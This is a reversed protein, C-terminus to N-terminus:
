GTETAPRPLHNTSALTGSRTRAAATDIPSSSWRAPFRIVVHIVHDLLQGDQDHIWVVAAVASTDHALDPLPIRGLFDGPFLKFPLKGSDFSKADAPHNERSALRQHM